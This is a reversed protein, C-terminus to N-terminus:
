LGGKEATIEDLVTDQPPAAQHFIERWRFTVLNAITKKSSAINEKVIVGTPKRFIFDIEELTKGKTEPMFLIQYFWGVVAISGYFGITLGTPTMSDMMASFNYTMLFASLFLTVDSTTMGYSRLYTPYVESPIVWTLCAYSGFFGYYLILGTLYVGEAAALNTELNFRYSVGILVLGVFFGPLMTIAWFRRGFREMYLVAPITGFLLAGGGVMSMYNSEYKDFGIRNM